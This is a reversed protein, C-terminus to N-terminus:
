LKIWKIRRVRRYNNASDDTLEIEVILEHYNLEHIKADMFIGDSLSHLEERNISVTLTGEDVSWKGMYADGECASESCTRNIIATRDENLEMRSCEGDNIHFYQRQLIRNDSDYDVYEIERELWITNELLQSYNVEKSVDNEKCSFIFLSLIAILKFHHTLM